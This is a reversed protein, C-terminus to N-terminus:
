NFDREREARKKALKIFEDLQERTNNKKCYKKHFEKHTKESLTIGNDYIIGNYQCKKAKYKNPKRTTKFFSQNYVM